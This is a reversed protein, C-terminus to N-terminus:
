SIFATLKKIPLQYFNNIILNLPFVLQALVSKFCITASM